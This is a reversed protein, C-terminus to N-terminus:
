TQYVAYEYIHIRRFSGSTENHSTLTPSLHAAYEGGRVGYRARSRCKESYRVFRSKLLLVTPAHTAIM